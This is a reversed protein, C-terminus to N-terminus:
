LGITSRISPHTWLGIGALTALGWGVLAAPRTRLVAHFLMAAILPLFIEAYLLLREFPVEYPLFFSSFAVSYCYSHVLWANRRDVERRMLLLSAVVVAIHVAYKLAHFRGEENASYHVLLELSFGYISALWDAAWGAFPLLVLAAIAFRGAYRGAVAAIVLVVVPLHVLLAVIWGATALRGKGARYLAFGILFVAAALAQRIANGFGLFFVPVLPMAMCTLVVLRRNERGFYRWAGAIWLLVGFTALIRLAWPHDVVRQVLWGAIWFVRDTHLSFPSQDFRWAYRWSDISYGGWALWFTAMLLAQVLVVAPLLRDRDERSALYVLSASQLLVLYAVM